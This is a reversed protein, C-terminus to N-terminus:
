LARVKDTTSDLNTIGTFSIPMIDGSEFYVPRDEARCTLSFGCREGSATTERSRSNWIGHLWLEFLGSGESFDLNHTQKTRRTRPFSHRNGRQSYTSKRIPLVKGGKNQQDQEMAGKGRDQDKSKDMSAEEDFGITEACEGKEDYDCVRGPHAQKCRQCLQTAM